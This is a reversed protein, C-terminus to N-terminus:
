KRAVPHICFASSEIEKRNLVSISEMNGQTERDLLLDCLVDIHLINEFCKSTKQSRNSFLRLAVHFRDTKHLVSLFLVFTSSTIQLFTRWYLVYTLVLSVVLSIRSIIYIHCPSLINVIRDFAINHPNENRLQDKTGSFPSPLFILYHWLLTGCTIKALLKNRGICAGSALVAAM